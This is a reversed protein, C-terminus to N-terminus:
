PRGGVPLAITWLRHRRGPSSGAVRGALVRDAVREEGEGRAPCPRSPGAEPPVRGGEWSSAEWEGARSQTQAVGAPGRKLAGPSWGRRSTWRHPCLFSTSPEVPRHPPSALPQGRGVERWGAQLRWGRPCLHGCLALPTLVMPWLCTHTGQLTGELRPSTPRGWPM